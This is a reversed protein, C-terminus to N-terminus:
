FPSVCVSERVGQCAGEKCENLDSSASVCREIMAPVAGEVGPVACHRHGSGLAKNPLLVGGHGEMCRLADVILTGERGSSESTTGLVDEGMHGLARRAM